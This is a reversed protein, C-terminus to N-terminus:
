RRTRATLVSTERTPRLVVVADNNRAVVIARGGNAQRLWKMDRVQGDIELGSEELDVSTFRGTSDGRLLLGFSADYRGRLPTVGHFNGGLLIDVHGDGDFDDVLTAYVPAFQAEAPLARLSFTGNGENIAIASALYRAEMVTARRLENSPLIDDVTSAGFKAYSDYRRRLPPM